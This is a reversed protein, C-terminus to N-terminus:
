KLARDWISQRVKLGRKLLEALSAVLSWITWCRCVGHNYRHWTTPVWLDQYRSRYSWTSSSRCLRDQDGITRQLYASAARENFCAILDGLDLLIFFYIHLKIIIIYSQCFDFWYLLLERVFIDGCWQPLLVRWIWMSLYSDKHVVCSVKGSRKPTCCRSSPGICADFFLKCGIAPAPQDKCRSLCSTTHWYICQFLLYTSNESAAQFMRCSFM